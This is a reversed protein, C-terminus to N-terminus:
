VHRGLVRRQLLLLPKQSSHLAFASAEAGRDSTTQDERDGFTGRVVARLDPVRCSRWPRLELTRTRRHVLAHEAAHVVRHCTRHSGLKAERALSPLSVFATQSKQM